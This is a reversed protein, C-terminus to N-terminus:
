FKSIVSFQVSHHIIVLISLHQLIIQVLTTVTAPIQLKTPPPTKTLMGGRHWHHHDTDFTPNNIRLAILPYGADSYGNFLANGPLLILERTDPYANCLRWNNASALKDLYRSCHLGACETYNHCRQRAPLPSILHPSSHPYTSWSGPDHVRGGASYHLPLVRNCDVPLSVEAGTV